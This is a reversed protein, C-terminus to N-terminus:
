VIMFRSDEFNSSTHEEELTQRYHVLVIHELKKDLLWYCRRYFNPDDEGRAYYVHIREENGIKLKEHAEQVTKGDKKKKWNYGDKRFNRLMKRDFLVISGNTPNEVPQPLVTFHTSNTLIAHVENPRFWRTSADERLKTIDLDALTRFGHVEGGALPILSPDM